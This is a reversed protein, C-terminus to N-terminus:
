SKAEYAEAALTNPRDPHLSHGDIDPLTQGTSLGLVIWEELIEQLEQRCTELSPAHAWVDSCGPIEGLYAGDELIEYTAHQLAANIYQTLM